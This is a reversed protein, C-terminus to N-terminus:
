KNRWCKGEVYTMFREGDRSMAFAVNISDPGLLQYSLRFVPSNEMRGSTLVVARDSHTVSYNIVHGENDFYMAKESTGAGDRYVVMVDDHVTRPASGTAPYETHNRRILIKGDLDPKLSFWGGGQGPSGSGDGVWEGVLWEWKKWITDQQAPSSTTVGLLVLLLALMQIRMM